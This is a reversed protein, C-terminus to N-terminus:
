SEKKRYPNDGYGMDDNSGAYYGTAYGDDWAKEAVQRSQEDKEGKECPHPVAFVIKTNDNLQMSAAVNHLTEDRTKEAVKRDHKTLWQQYAKRTEDIPTGWQRFCGAVVASEVLEDSIIRIISM